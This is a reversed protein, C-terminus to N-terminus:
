NKSQEFHHALRLVTKEDFWRGIIQLGVPLGAVVGCPVSIAPVGALSMPITFIDALYMQLPDNSKEGIKFAVTPSVPSLILDVQEFAQEFDRKILSRVACAKKYYADFYGASLTYTGL